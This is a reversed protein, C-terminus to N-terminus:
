FFRAVILPIFVTAVTIISGSSSQEEAEATDDQLCDMITTGKQGKRSRCARDVGSGYVQSPQIRAGQIDVPCEDGDNCEHTQVLSSDFPRVVVTFSHCGSLLQVARYHLTTIVASM